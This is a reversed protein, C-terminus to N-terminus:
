HHCFKLYQPGFQVRLGKDKAGFKGLEPACRMLLSKLGFGYGMALAYRGNKM